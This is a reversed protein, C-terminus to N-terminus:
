TSATEAIKRARNLLDSNIEPFDPDELFNLFEEPRKQAAIELIEMLQDPPIQEKYIDLESFFSEFAVGEEDAFAETLNKYGHLALFEFVDFQASELVSEIDERVEEGARDEPNKPKEIM